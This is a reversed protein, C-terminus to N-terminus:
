WFIHHSIDLYAVSKTESFAVKHKISLPTSECFHLDASFQWSKGFLLM